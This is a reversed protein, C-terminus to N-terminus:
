CERAYSFIIYDYLLAVLMAMANSIYPKTQGLSNAKLQSLKSSDKLLQPHRGWKTSLRIYLFKPQSKLFTKAFLNSEKLKILKNVLAKLRLLDTKM